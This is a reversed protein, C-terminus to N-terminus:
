NENKAEWGQSHKRIRQKYVEKYMWTGRREIEYSHIAILFEQLIKDDTTKEKIVDIAQKGTGLM